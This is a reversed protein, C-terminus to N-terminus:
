SPTGGRRLYIELQEDSLGNVVIEDADQKFEERRKVM